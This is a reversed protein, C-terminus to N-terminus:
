LVYEMKKPMKGVFLVASRRLKLEAAKKYVERRDTSHFRVTGGQVQLAANAVPDEILVWEGDFQAEIEEMTLATDM